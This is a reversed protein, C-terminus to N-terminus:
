SAASDVLYYCLTGTSHALIRYLSAIKASFEPALPLVAFGVNAEFTGDPMEDPSLNVGVRAFEAKADEADSHTPFGLNFIFLHPKRPDLKDSELQALILRIEAEPKLRNPPRVQDPTLRAFGRWEFHWWLTVLISCLCAAALKLRQSM